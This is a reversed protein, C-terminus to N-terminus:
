NKHEQLRHAADGGAYTSRAKSTILIQGQLFYKTKLFCTRKKWM